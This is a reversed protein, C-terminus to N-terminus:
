FKVLVELVKSVNLIEIGLLKKNKDFDLIINDYLEITKVADGGKIDDVVYLYAADVIKDYEIKM